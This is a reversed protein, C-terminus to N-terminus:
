IRLSNLLLLSEPPSPTAEISRNAAQFVKIPSVRATLFLQFLVSLLRRCLLFLGASVFVCLIALVFDNGQEMDRSEDFLEFLPALLVLALLVILIPNRAVRRM